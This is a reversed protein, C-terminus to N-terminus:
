EKSRLWTEADGHKKAKTRMYTRPDTLFGNLIDARSEDGRKEKEHNILNSEVIPLMPYKKLLQQRLLYIRSNKLDKLIHRNKKFYTAVGSEANGSRQNDADRLEDLFDQYIPHKVEPIKHVDTLLELVAHQTCNLWEFAFQEYEIQTMYELSIHGTKAWANWHVFKVKPYEEQVWKFAKKNLQVFSADIITMRGILPTLTPMWKRRSEDTWCYLILKEEANEWWEDNMYNTPEEYSGFTFNNENHRANWYITRMSGTPRNVRVSESRVIPKLKKSFPKVGLDELWKPIDTVDLIYDYDTPIRNTLKAIKEPPNPVDNFLINSHIPWEVIQNDPVYGRHDKGFHKLALGQHFVEKDLVLGEWIPFPLQFLEKNRKRRGHDDYATPAKRRSYVQHPKLFLPYLTENVLLVKETEFYWCFGNMKTTIPPIQEIGSPILLKLQELSEKAKKQSSHIWLYLGELISTEDKQLQANDIVGEKQGQFARSRTLQTYRGRDRWFEVYNKLGLMAAGRHENHLRGMTRTIKDLLWAKYKGAKDIEIHERNAAVDVQGTRARFVFCPTRTHSRLGYLLAELYSCQVQYPIGDLVLLLNPLNGKSEYSSNEADIMEFPLEPDVIMKPQAITINHLKPLVPWFRLLFSLLSHSRNIDDQQVQVQIEVGNPETTPGVFLEAMEGDPTGGLHCLYHYETGEHFSRVVFSDTYAWGSKAGIGFGGIYEDSEGKTTGGFQIFVNEMRDPSLGPGYDRVKFIPESKTPATIEIEHDPKGVERNADRANSIYEQIFVRLKDSYLRDRVILIMKTANSEAIKFKKSEPKFNADFGVGEHKLQM